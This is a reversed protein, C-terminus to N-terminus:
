TKPIIINKQFLLDVFIQYINKQNSKFLYINEDDFKQQRNRIFLIFPLLFQRQIKLFFLFITFKTRNVHEMCLGCCDVDIINNSYQIYIYIYIYINTFGLLLLFNNTLLLLFKYM